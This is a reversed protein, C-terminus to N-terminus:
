PELVEIGQIISINENFETDDTSNFYIHMKIGNDFPALLADWYYLDGSLEGVWYIDKGLVTDERFIYGDDGVEVESAITSPYLGFYIGLYNADEGIKTIERITYVDFDIGIQEILVFNKAIDIQLKSYYFEISKAEQGIERNGIQISNIMKDAQNACAEKDNILNKSVYVGAYIITNDTSKIFASDILVLDKSKSYTGPTVRIIDTEANSKEFSIEPNKISGEFWYDVFEEADKNVDGSSYKFTEVFYMILQQEGYEANLQTVEHSSEPAYMVGNQITMNQTGEPMYVMLRGDLASFEETLEQTLVPGKVSLEDTPKETEQATITESSASAQEGTVEPSTQPSIETQDQCASIGLLLALVILLTVIKKM